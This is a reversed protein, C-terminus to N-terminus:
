KLNTSYFTMLNGWFPPSLKRPNLLKLLNSRTAYDTKWYPYERKLVRFGTQELVSILSKPHYMCLHGTGLLRYNGQFTLGAISRINPTGVILIGQPRLLRKITKLIEIPNSLHEIVHYLNVVDFSNELFRGEDLLGEHRILKPFEKEMYELAFKSIELAHREWCPDLASLFYGLGAGIDLIKGADLNNVYPVIGCFFNKIRFEREKTMDREVGDPDIIESGWYNEEYLSEIPKRQYWSSCDSCVAYINGQWDTVEKKYAKSRCCPCFKLVVGSM